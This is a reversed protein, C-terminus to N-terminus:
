RGGVMRFRHGGRVHHGAPHGYRHRGHQFRRGVASHAVWHEHLHQTCHRTGRRHFRFPYCSGIPYQYVYNDRYYRSSYYSGHDYRSEEIREEDPDLSPDEAQGGGRPADQASAPAGRIVELESGFADPTVVTATTGRIVVVSGPPAESSRYARLEDATAGGVTLLAPFALTALLLRRVCQEERILAVM